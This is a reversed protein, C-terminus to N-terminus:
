SPERVKDTVKKHTRTVKNNTTTTKLPIVRVQRGKLMLGCGCGPVGLAMQPKYLEKKLFLNALRSLHSLPESSQRSKCLVQTGTGSVMHYSTGPFRIDKEPRQPCWVHVYM